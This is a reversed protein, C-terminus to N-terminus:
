TNAAFIFEVNNQDIKHFIQVVWVWQETPYSIVFYSHIGLFYPKASLFCSELRASEKLWSGASISLGNQFLMPIVTMFSKCVRGWFAWCSDSNSPMLTLWISKIVCVSVRGYRTSVLLFSTICLIAEARLVDIWSTHVWGRVFRAAIKASRNRWGDESISFVAM